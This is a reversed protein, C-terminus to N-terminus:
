KGRNTFSAIKAALEEGFGTDGPQASDNGAELDAEQNSQRPKPRKTLGLAHPM